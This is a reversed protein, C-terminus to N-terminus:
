LITDVLFLFKIEWCWMWRFRWSCGQTWPGHCYPESLLKQNFSIVMNLQAELGTVPDSVVVSRRLNGWKCVKVSRDFIVPIRKVTKHSGPFELVLELFYVFYVFNQLLLRFPFLCFLLFWGRIRLYLRLQWWSLEM